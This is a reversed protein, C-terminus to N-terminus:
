LTLVIIVELIKSPIFFWSTLTPSDCSHGLTQSTCTAGFAFLCFSPPAHQPYVHVQTLSFSDVFCTLNDRGLSVIYDDFFNLDTVGGTHTCYQGIMQVVPLNAIDYVLVEHPADGRQQFDRLNQYHTSIGAVLIKRHATFRAALTLIRRGPAADLTQATPHSHTLQNCNLFFNPHYM